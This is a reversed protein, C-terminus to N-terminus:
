RAVPSSAPSAVFLFRFAIPVLSSATSSVAERPSLPPRHRVFLPWAVVQPNNCMPMAHGAAQVLLGGTGRRHIGSLGPQM